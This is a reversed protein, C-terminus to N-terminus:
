KKYLLAKFLKKTYSEIRICFTEEKNLITRGLFHWCLVHALEHMFVGAQHIMPLSSDVVVKYTYDNIYKCTGWYKKNSIRNQFFINIKLDPKKM